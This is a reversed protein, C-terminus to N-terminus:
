HHVLGYLKQLRGPGPGGPGRPGRGCEFPHMSRASISTCSLSSCPGSGHEFAPMFHPDFVAVEFGELCIAIGWPTQQEFLPPHPFLHDHRFRASVVRRNQGIHRCYPIAHKGQIPSLRIRGFSSTLPGCGVCCRCKAQSAAADRPAFTFHRKRCKKVPLLAVSMHDFTDPCLGNV